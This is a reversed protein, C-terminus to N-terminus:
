APVPQLSDVLNEDFGPKVTRQKGRNRILLEDDNRIADVRLQKFLLSRSGSNSILVEDASRLM